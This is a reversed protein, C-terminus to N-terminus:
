GGVTFGLSWLWALSVVALEMTGHQVMKIRERRSSSRVALRLRTTVSLPAVMLWIHKKDVLDFEYRRGDPIARPPFSTSFLFSGFLCTPFRFRFVLDNVHFRIGRSSCGSAPYATFAKARIIRKSVIFSLHLTLRSTM